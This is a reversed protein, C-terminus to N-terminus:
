ITFTFNYDERTIQGKKREDEDKQLIKCVEKKHRDITDSDLNSFLSARMKQTAQARKAISDFLSTIGSADSNYLPTKESYNEQLDSGLNNM